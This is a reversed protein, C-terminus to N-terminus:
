STSDSPLVAQLSLDTALPARNGSAAITVTNEGAPQTCPPLPPAGTTAKRRLSSASLNTHMGCESKGQGAWRGSREPANPDVAATTMIDGVSKYGRDLLPNYYVGKARAFQWSQDYSWHALPNIKISGDRQLELVELTSRQDGQSRRRGTIWVKVNLDSLARYTPEIKALADYYSVDNKWLEKGHM